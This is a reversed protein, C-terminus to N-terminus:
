VCREKISGEGCCRLVLVIFECAASTVAGSVVGEKYIDNVQLFVM